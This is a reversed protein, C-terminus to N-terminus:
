LSLSLPASGSPQPFLGLCGRPPRHPLPVPEEKQKLTYVLAAGRPLHGVVKKSSIPKHKTTQTKFPCELGLVLCPAEPFLIFPEQLHLM